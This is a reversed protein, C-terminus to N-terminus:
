ANPKSLWNVGCCTSTPFAYDSSNAKACGPASRPQWSRAINRRAAALLASMQDPTFVTLGRAPIPPLKIKFCPSAPILRDYTASRLVMALVTYTSDVTSPALGKATLAAVCAVIESRRLSGLPMHGLAPVIHKRLSLQYQHRTSDAVQLGTVWQAAYAALTIRAEAPSLHTGARIQTRAEAMADLAAARTPFRRRVMRDNVRYTIEYSAGRSHTLKRPSSM